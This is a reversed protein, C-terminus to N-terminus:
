QLGAAARRGANRSVYLDTIARDLDNVIGILRFKTGDTERDLLQMGTQFIRDALQTPSELRQNAHATQFRRDEAKASGDPRRDTIQAAPRQVKESLRRLHM